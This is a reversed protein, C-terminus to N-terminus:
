RLQLGLGLVFVLVEPLLISPLFQLPPPPLELVGGQRPHDLALELYLLGLGLAHIDRLFFELGGQLGQLALARFQFDRVRAVLVADFLLEDQQFDDIPLHPAPDHHRLGFKLPVILLM